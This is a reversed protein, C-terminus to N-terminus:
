VASSQKLNSLSNDFLQGSKSAVMTWKNGNEAMLSKKKVVVLETVSFVFQAEFFPTSRVRDTQRKLVLSLQGNKRPEAAM